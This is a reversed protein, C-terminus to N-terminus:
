VSKSEVLQRVVRRNQRKGDLLISVWLLIATGIVFAAMGVPDHAREFASEGQHFRIEALICARAVNMAWATLLAIGVTLVRPKFALSLWEGFCLSAMLFSQASRIGSCGESVEVVQGLLELQNGVVMVPRGLLQFIWSSTELVGKTMGDVLVMEIITPLRVATLTFLLVPILGVAASRGAVWWAGGITIASTVVAMAWLPMPWGPDVQLLTRLAGIAATLLIFGVAIVWGSLPARSLTEWSRWKRYFFWVALPPVYWGYDYYLAHLWGYSACYFVQAWLVAMLVLWPTHSPFRTQQSMIAVSLRCPDGHREFTSM